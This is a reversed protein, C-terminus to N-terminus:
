VSSNEHQKLVWEAFLRLEEATANNKMCNAKYSLIQINDPTYGKSSDIRDVSPSNPAAKGTGKNRELRIGLVPCIEPIVIDKITITCELDKRRAREQCRQLIYKAYNTDDNYAAKRDEKIKEKNAEWRAKSRASINEKNKQYYQRRYEETGLKYSM